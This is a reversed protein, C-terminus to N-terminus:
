ALIVLAEELRQVYAKNRKSGKVSLKYRHHPFIEALDVVGLNSFRQLHLSATRAAVKAATTMDRATWWKQPDGKLVRYVRIEHESIENREMRPMIGCPM